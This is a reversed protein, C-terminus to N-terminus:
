ALAAQDSGEFPAAVRCGRRARGGYGAVAEVRCEVLRYVADRAARVRVRVRAGVRVRPRARVGFRGRVGVGVM